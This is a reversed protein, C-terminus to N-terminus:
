KSVAKTYDDIPKQLSKAKATLNAQASNPDGSTITKELAEEAAQRSQPMVGMACGATATSPQTSHLQNVAVTFQPLQKVWAKDIPEDLAAKNVPFYGTGTHWKAQITPSSAFKIFEWSARKEADTHGVGNVWLSAGGIITGGNSSGDGTLRPFPAAAVTFKGKSADIFDRLEGTSELTMGVTGSKFAQQAADTTRGTNTAAKENVMRTWWQAVKVSDASDFLAKSALGSRGNDKDCYQDGNTALLQELFWGYIAANFGTVKSSKAAKKIKKADAEIEDLNKPPKSPDLGAKKFLDVNIYLLPMSTNFPMSWQKGDFRYYNAINPEIQSVDFKDKEIFKYMPVTQKSDIMFRSGIDYVQILDPTHHQQVSTKYKAIADDYEGEFVPKVKIKGKHANNFETVIKNLAVVNAGKMSHWFEVETVGKANKLADAGPANTSGGASDSGGCAAMTATTTLAAAVALVRVTWGRRPIHRASM